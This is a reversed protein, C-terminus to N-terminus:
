KSALLSNLQSLKERASPADSAQPALQLYAKIHEIASGYNHQKALITGYLYELQPLQHKTDLLLGKVASREADAVNGLNFKAASNFFWYGAGLNPSQQVVRDTIDALLSWQRQRAALRTLESYAPLFGPDHAIAKQFSQQADVLDDHQVQARGLELWAFTYQPYLEVAKKFSECAASWKGKRAQEQGKAFAKKANAPAALSAVSVTATGDAQTKTWPHLTITGVHVIGPSPDIMFHLEESMSNAAEAHLECTFSTVMNIQITLAFNGHQYVHAQAKPGSTCQLIVTANLGASSGEPVVQGEVTVTSNDIPRTGHTNDIAQGMDQNFDPRSVRSQANGLPFHFIMLGFLWLIVSGPIIPRSALLFTNSM